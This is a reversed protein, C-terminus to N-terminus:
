PSNMVEAKSHPSMEALDPGRRPVEIAQEGLITTTSRRHSTTEGTDPLLDTISTSAAPMPSTRLVRLPQIQRRPSDCLRGGPTRQCPTESPSGCIVAGRPCPGSPTAPQAPVLAAWARALTVTHDAIYLTVDDGVMRDNDYFFVPCSPRSCDIGSFYHCGWNVFEVLREQGGSAVRRTRVRRM